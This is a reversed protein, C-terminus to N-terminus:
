AKGDFIGPPTINTVEEQQGEPLIDVLTFNKSCYKSKNIVTIKYNIEEGINVEDPGTKNVCLNPNQKLNCCKCCPITRLSDKISKRCEPICKYQCKSQKM